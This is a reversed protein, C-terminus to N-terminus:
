DGDGIFTNPFIWPCFFFFQKKKVEVCVKAVLPSLDRLVHITTRVIGDFVVPVLRKLAALVDGVQLLVPHRTGTLRKQGGKKPPM